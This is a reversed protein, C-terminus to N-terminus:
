AIWSFLSRSIVVAVKSHGPSAVSMPKDKSDAESASLRSRSPSQTPLIDRMGSPVSSPKMVDQIKIFVDRLHQTDERDHKEALAEVVGRRHTVERDRAAILMQVHENDETM